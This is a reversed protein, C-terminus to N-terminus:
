AAPHAVAHDPSSRGARLALLTAVALGAAILTSRTLIGSWDANDAALIGCGCSTPEPPPQAVLLGAYVAFVLFLGSGLMLVLGTAKAGRMMLLVMGLVGVGAEASALVVAATQASRGELLHHSVITGEFRGIDSWKEIGAYLFLLSVAAAVFMLVGTLVRAATDPEDRVPPPPESSSSATM